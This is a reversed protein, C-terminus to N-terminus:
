LSARRGQTLECIGSRTNTLSRFLAQVGCVSIRPHKRNGGNKSRAPVTWEDSKANEANHLTKGGTFAWLWKWFTGCERRLEVFRKADHIVAEVKRHSRIMGPVALVRAIDDEGHRAIIPM